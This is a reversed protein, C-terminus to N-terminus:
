GGGANADTHPLRPAYEGCTDPVAHPFPKREFPLPRSAAPRHAAGRVAASYLPAGPARGDIRCRRASRCLSGVVQGANSAGGSASARMHGARRRGASGNRPATHGAPRPLGRESFHRGAARKGSHFLCPPLFPVVLPSPTEDNSQAIHPTGPAIYSVDGKQFPYVREGIFFVGSGKLCLGLEAHGHVHLDRLSRFTQTHYDAWVPFDAPLPVDCSVAEPFRRKQM